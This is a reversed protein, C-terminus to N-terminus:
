LKTWISDTVALINSGLLKHPSPPHHHTTHLGIKTNMKLRLWASCFNFHPLCGEFNKSHLYLKLALTKYTAKESLLAVQNGKIGHAM